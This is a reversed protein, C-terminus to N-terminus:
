QTSNPFSHTSIVSKYGIYLKVKASMTRILEILM